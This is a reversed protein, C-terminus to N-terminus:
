SRSPPRCEWRGGTTFGASLHSRAAQLDRVTLETKDLVPLAVTGRRAPV